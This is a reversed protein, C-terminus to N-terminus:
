LARRVAEMRELAVGSAGTRRATRLLGIAEDVIAPEGGALEVLVEVLFSERLLCPTGSAPVLATSTLQQPVYALDDCLGGWGAVVLVTAVAMGSTSLVGSVPVTLLVVAASAPIALWTGSLRPSGGSSIKALEATSRTLREMALELRWRDVAAGRLFARAMAVSGFRSGSVAAIDAAVLRELAQADAPGAPAYLAWALLRMVRASRCRRRRITAAVGAGTLGAPIVVPGLRQAALLLAVALCAALLVAVSLPTCAFTWRQDRGAAQRRYGAASTQPRRRDVRSGVVM